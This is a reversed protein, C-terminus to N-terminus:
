HEMGSTLPEKGQFALLWLECEHGIDTIGLKVWILSNQAQLKFNYIHLAQNWMILVLHIEQLDLNRM